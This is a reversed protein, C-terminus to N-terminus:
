SADAGGTQAESAETDAGPMGQATQIVKPSCTAALESGIPETSWHASPAATCADTVAYYEAAHSGFLAALSEVPGRAGECHVAAAESGQAGGQQEASSGSEEFLEATRCGGVEPIEDDAGGGAPACLGTRASCGARDAVDNAEPCVRPGSRQDQASGVASRCAASGDKGARAEAVRNCGAEIQYVPVARLPSEM